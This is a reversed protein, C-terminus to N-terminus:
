CCTKTTCVKVYGILFSWSFVLRLMLFASLINCTTSAWLDTKQSSSIGLLEALEGSEYAEITDTTVLIVFM